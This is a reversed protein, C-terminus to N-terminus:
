IVEVGIVPDFDPGFEPGDDYQPGKWADAAGNWPSRLSYRPDPLIPDVQLSDIGPSAPDALGALGFTRGGEFNRGAGSNPSRDFEVDGGNAAFSPYGINRTFDGLPQFEPM